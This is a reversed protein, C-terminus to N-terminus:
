QQRKKAIHLHAKRLTIDMYSAQNPRTAHWRGQLDMMAQQVTADPHTEFYLTSMEWDQASRDRRQPLQGTQVTVTDNAITLKQQRIIRAFVAENMNQIQQHLIRVQHGKGPKVNWSGPM